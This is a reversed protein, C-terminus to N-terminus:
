DQRLCYPHVYDWKADWEEHNRTAPEARFILAAANCAAYSSFGPVVVSAAGGANGTHGFLLIVLVWRM